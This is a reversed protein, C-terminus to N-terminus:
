VAHLMWAAAARCLPEGPDGLACVIDFHNHGAQAVVQADHGAAAWAAAYSETQRMFESTELGGYSALLRPAPPRKPILRIPSNRRAAAADLGMWDNVFSRRVPELDFLGSLTLAGRIADPALGYGVHWGDALLMGCLHGGASSGGVFLRGPDAGQEAAHAAVWACATRVQRVIGDLDSAPVLAYDMVAVHVGAAVLGPAVCSQDAKTLARWYGGHVWLFAPGDPAGAFWDLTCGSEPDFVLDPQMPLARRTALSRTRYADIEAEYDGVSARADYGSDLAAQDMGNWIADM